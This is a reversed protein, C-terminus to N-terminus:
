RVLHMIVIYIHSIPIAGVQRRSVDSLRRVSEILELSEKQLETIQDEYQAKREQHHFDFNSLDNRYHFINYLASNIWLPILLSGLTM